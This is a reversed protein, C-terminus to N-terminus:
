GEAAAAAEQAAAGAAAGVLGVEQAAVAAVEKEVAATDAASDLGEVVEATGTQAAGAGVGVERAVLVRVVVAMTAMGEAVRPEAVAVQQAVMAAVTTVAARMDVAGM